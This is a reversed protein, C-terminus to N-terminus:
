RLADNPPRLSGNNIARTIWNLSYNTRNAVWRKWAQRRKAKSWDGIAEQARRIKEAHDRQRRQKMASVATATASCTRSCYAKQRKTKKLYYDGCRKCPGGLGDWQPNTILSMFLEFAQDGPSLGAADTVVPTWDLYGQGGNTTYFTAKGGRARTDLAPEKRFMKRLNPGTRMWLRILRRLEVQMASEKLRVIRLESPGGVERTPIRICNLANVLNSMQHRALIPDPVYGLPKPPSPRPM